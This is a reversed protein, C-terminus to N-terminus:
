EIFIESLDTYIRDIIERFVPGCSEGGGIGDEALVVISYKPNEVPFFGAYWAQIIENGEANKMGTQATSTKAAANTKEPKGKGSTGYEVSASMYRKLKEATKESIIKEPSKNENKITEMKEDALGYILSPESYLGKSAIANIMGSVQLPTVTLKGQGFSFNALIGIKNLSEESPLIGKSCSIGPALEINEGFRFKKAMSLLQTAGIKKALEIFYGNCSYALAKEMDEMGHPKGAFCRFKNEDTENFGKCEYQFNESIGNELAAAATVLKFISGFSYPMLARNILPSNEDNLYKAVAQPMFGPFSAMARIECGPVETIIVAGKSIYKNAIEETLEQLRQDINLIVGKTLLYSKDDAFSDGGSLLHNSADVSYRVSIDRNGCDLYDDYAKEIGFVGKNENSLYGIIHTALVINSYRIPVEFTKVGSCNITKNVEISFPESLSLKKWLEPIKDEEVSKSLVDSIRTGPVVAAILKKTRNVLPIFRFDYITGRVSSIKLKYSRQYAAADHLVDQTSINDLMLISGCFCFMLISFLIIIRKYM